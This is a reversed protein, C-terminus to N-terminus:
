RLETHARTKLVRASRAAQSVLAKVRELRREIDDWERATADDGIATRAEAITTDILALQELLAKPTVGPSFASSSPAPTEPKMIHPERWLSESVLRM